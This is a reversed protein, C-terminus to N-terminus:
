SLVAKSNSKKKVKTKALLKIQDEQNIVIYKLIGETIKFQRELELPFEPESEFNVLVYYGEAKDKIEYALKKIGWEDISTITANAEILDKFKAVLAAVAEEGLSSDVIFINEYRRTM